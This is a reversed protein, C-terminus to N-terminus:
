GGSRLRELIAMVDRTRAAPPVEGLMTLLFTTSNARNLSGHTSAVQGIMAHFFRSGHCAGDRLSIILDPPQQVIGHFAEWVRALPDPYVHDVTACFLAADDIRGAPSVKGAARLRDIVDTLQLPDGRSAQYIWGDHDKRVLARGGRSRVVIGEGAPYFALDVDDSALLCTSVGDPDRTYLSAVTILGYAVVVVDRDGRLSKGVRYGGRTLLDEISILRCPTLNHGHDATLTLKVRGRREHVIQECMRDITLLYRRIAERGGRTGLGATGVSYAFAQGAATRRFVESMGALEHDFVSQPDLYARADWWTSCRYQVRRVWPSNAGSLYVENGRSMRNAVRDFYLAENAVPAPGGFLQSLALDTMSPFCCIVRGPPHFLRFHGERYLQEVLDFPVGDLAILFHPVQGAPIDDLGIRDGPRGPQPGSFAIARKRGSADQYQWYDPGGRGDMDFALVTEGDTRRVEAPPKFRVPGACGPGLAAAALILLIKAPTAVPAGAIRGTCERNPPNMHNPM